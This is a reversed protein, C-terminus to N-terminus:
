TFLQDITIRLADALLPLFKTPPLRKGAEWECISSKGVGIKAGLAEQTLGLDLRADQLISGNFSRM